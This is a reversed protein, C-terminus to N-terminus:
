YSKRFYTTLDVITHMYDGCMKFFVQKQFTDSLTTIQTKYSQEMEEANKKHKAATEDRKHHSFKM